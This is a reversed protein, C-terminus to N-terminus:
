GFASKLTQRSFTQSNYSLCIVIIRCFVHSFMFFKAKFADGLETSYVKDQKMSKFLPRKTKRTKKSTTKLRLAM